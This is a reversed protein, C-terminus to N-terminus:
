ATVEQTDRRRGRRGLVALGLLGSGFLVLAGPLPIAQVALFSEPGDNAPHLADGLQSALAIHFTSFNGVLLGNFQAQEAANLVFQFIANGNGQQLALQLATFTVPAALSFTGVVTNANNYLSLVLQNLTLGLLGEQGANFGLKVDAGSTWGLSGLTPASNKSGDCCPSVIDNEGAFSTPSVVGGASIVIQGAETGNNGNPPPGNDQLTLLRPANGFGQAGIDTFSAAVSGGSLVLSARANQPLGMLGVGAACMAVFFATRTQM